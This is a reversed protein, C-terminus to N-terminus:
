VSELTDYTHVKAAAKVLGGSFMMPVPHSFVLLSELVHEQNVKLFRAVEDPHARLVALRDLHKRLSDRKKGDDSAWGRYDSLQEAIEGYTKKFKLDKCEIVLVRGSSPHYALVDVDGYKRDLCKHLIKTLEIEQHVCWGLSEMKEAVRQNFEAGDRERAEGAYKRMSPGLHEDGYAGEYYNRFMSVFGERILAPDVLYLPDEGAKLMILPRRLLGLRRRFRSPSIDKWAYGEPLIGWQPRTVLQLSDIIAAGVEPTDALPLLQLRSCVFIMKKEKIGVDELADVFRRFADLSVGFETEWSALFTRSIDTSTAVPTPSATALSKTYGKVSSTYRYTSSAKGFPDMITDLFDHRAHVDGLPRIVLDPELMDWYILDSWGSLHFIQAAQAMLLSLDLDGPRAGHGLSSECVVVEILNRSSQLTGNLKSEHRAM